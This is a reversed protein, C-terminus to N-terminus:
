EIEIDERENHSTQLANFFVEILAVGESTVFNNALSTIDSSINDGWPPQLLTDNIDWM